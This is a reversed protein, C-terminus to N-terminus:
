ALEGLHRVRWIVENRQGPSAPESWGSLLNGASGVPPVMRVPGGAGCAHLTCCPRAWVSLTGHFSARGLEGRCSPFVSGARPLVESGPVSRIRDKQGSGKSTLGALRTGTGTSSHPRASGQCHLASGGRGLEGLVGDPWHMSPPMTCSVPTWHRTVVRCFVSVLGM